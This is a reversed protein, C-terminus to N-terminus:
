HLERAAIEELQAVATQYEALNRHYAHEYDFLTVRSNLLTLFDVKNTQYGIIASDLAHQAQPIIGTKYLEALKFSRDMKAFLDSIGSDLGLLMGNLEETAMATEANAEAVMAHRRGLQMFPLNFEVGISYVDLGIESDGGGHSGAPVPDRQGYEFFVRFDPFFEKQALKHSAKGKDISAKFRKINPNNDWTLKRVEDPSIALRAITFDPIRGVPTEAPRNLVANLNAALSKRQQVLSIHLELLKSREVHAKFVDQQTGQAVSYKTEAINIFDDLVKIDRETIGISRETYYIKYYYEKVSRIVSLKVEDLWWRVAEAEKAAAEGKIERKGWFPIEQSIGIVKTTKEIRRLNGPSEVPAEQLRFLLLPDPLASAQPIKGALTRWHAHKFKVYTNHALATEVLLPLNEEKPEDAFLPSAAILLLTIILLFCRSIM